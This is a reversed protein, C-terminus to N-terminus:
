RRARHQAHRPRPPRAAAPVVPGGPSAPPAPAAPSGHAAYHVACESERGRIVRRGKLEGGTETVVTCQREAHDDSSWYIVVWDRTRGLEHARATNSYLATFHWGDRTLHMIPLWAEGSPNFRRPAITPLKGATAQERYRRDVELLLAAGPRAEDPRGHDRSLRGLRTALGARIAALRRPGIGAVAALTGDWAAAELAELTDVALEAHIRRALEPGVGPVTAFLSEPDVDGRLHELQNWRGTLLLERITAAIGRGVGPIGTLGAVDERGALERLDEPYSAISDAARRYARVRFPNAGQRELLEAAEVLRRAIDRNTDTAM